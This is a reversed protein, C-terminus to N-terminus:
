FGGGVPAGDPLFAGWRMRWALRCGTTSNSGTGWQWQINNSDTLFRPLDAGDFTRSEVLALGTGAYLEWTAPRGDLTSRWVGRMRNFLTGPGGTGPLAVSGLSGGGAAFWEWVINNAPQCWLVGGGASGANDPWDTFAPAVARPRPAICFGQSSVGTGDADFQYLVDMIWVRAVPRVVPFTAPDRDSQGVTPGFCGMDRQLSGDYHVCPIGFHETRGRFSGGTTQTVAVLDATTFGTPLSGPGVNGEGYIRSDQYQGGLTFLTGPGGETSPWEAV